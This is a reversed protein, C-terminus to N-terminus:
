LKRTAAKVFGEPDTIDIIIEDSSRWLLQSFRMRNKLKISVLKRRTGTLIIRGKIGANSFVPIEVPEVLAVESFPITARFWIGQRLIIETETIEHHTLLPSLLALAVLALALGGFGWLLAMDVDPTSLVMLLVLLMTDLAAFRVIFHFKSYPFKM